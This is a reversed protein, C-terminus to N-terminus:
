IINVTVVIAANITTSSTTAVSSRHTVELLVIVHAINKIDLAYKASYERSHHM